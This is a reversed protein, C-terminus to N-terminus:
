VRTIAKNRIMIIKAKDDDDRKDRNYKSSSFLKHSPSDVLKTNMVIKYCIINKIKKLNLFNFYRSPFRTHFHYGRIFSIQFMSYIFNGMLNEERIRPQRVLSNYYRYKTQEKLKWSIILTCNFNSIFYGM